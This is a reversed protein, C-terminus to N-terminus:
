GVEGGRKEKSDIKVHPVSKFSLQVDRIVFAPWEYFRLGDVNLRFYRQCKTSMEILFIESM